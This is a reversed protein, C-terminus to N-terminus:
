EPAASLSLPGDSKYFGLTGVGIGQWQLRVLIGRYLGAKEVIEAAKYIGWVVYRADTTRTRRPTGFMTLSLSIGGEDWRQKSIQGYPDGAALQSAVKIALGFFGARDLQEGRSTHGIIEFGDPVGSGPVGNLLEDPSTANLDITWPDSAGARGIVFWVFFFIYSRSTRFTKKMATCNQGIDQNLLYSKPKQLM